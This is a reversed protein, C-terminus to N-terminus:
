PSHLVTSIIAANAAKHTFIVATRDNIDDALPIDLSGGVAQANATQNTEIGCRSHYLISYCETIHGRPFVTIDTAQNPQIVTVNDIGRSRTLHVTIARQRETTYYAPIRM